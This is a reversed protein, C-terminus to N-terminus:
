GKDSIGEEGGSNNIRDEEVGREKDPHKNNNFV